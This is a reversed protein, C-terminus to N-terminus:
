RTPRVAQAGATQCALMDACGVIALGVVVGLLGFLGGMHGAIAGGITATLAYAMKENRTM